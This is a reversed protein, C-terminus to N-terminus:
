DVFRFSQVVRRAIGYDAEIHENKFPSVDAFVWFRTDGRQFDRMLGIPQERCKPQPECTEVNLGYWYCVYEKGKVGSVVIESEETRQLCWDGQPNVWAVAKTPFIRPPDAASIPKTIDPTPVGRDIFSIYHTPLGPQLDLVPGDREVDWSAPYRIEYKFRENRYKKWGDGAADDALYRDYAVYGLIAVLPIALLLTM